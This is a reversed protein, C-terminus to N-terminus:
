SAVRDIDSRLRQSPTSAKDHTRPGNSGRPRNRLSTQARYGARAVRHAPADVSEGAGASVVGGMGDLALRQFGCVQPRVGIQQQQHASNGSWRRRSPRHQRQNPIMGPDSPACVSSHRTLGVGFGDSKCTIGHHRLLSEFGRCASSSRAHESARRSASSRCPTLDWCACTM